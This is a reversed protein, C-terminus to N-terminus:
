YFVKVQIKFLPNVRLLTTSSDRVFTLDKKMRIQKEKDSIDSRLVGWSGRCQHFDMARKWSGRCQHFTWQEREVEEANTFPGNSDKLKKLALLRKQEQSLAAEQRRKTDTKLLNSNWEVEMERKADVQECLASAPLSKPKVSLGPKALFPHPLSEMDTNNTPCDDVFSDLLFDPTGFRDPKCLQPTTHHWPNKTKNNWEM